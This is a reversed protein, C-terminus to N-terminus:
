IRWALFSGAFLRVYTILIFSLLKEPLGVQVTHLQIWCSTLRIIFTRSKKCASYLLHYPSRRVSKGSITMPGLLNFVSKINFSPWRNAVCLPCNTSVYMVWSALSVSCVRYGVPWNEGMEWCSDGKHVSIIVTTIYLCWLLICHLILLM